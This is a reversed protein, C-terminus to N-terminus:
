RVPTFLNLTASNTLSSSALEKGESKSIFAVKRAITTIRNQTGLSTLQWLRPDKVKRAGHGNVLFAAGEGPRGTTLTSRGIEQQDNTIFNSSKEYFYAFIEFLAFKYSFINSSRNYQVKITAFYSTKL